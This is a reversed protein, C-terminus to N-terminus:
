ALKFQPNKLLRNLLVILKRMVATLALKKPKGAKLLHQYFAHLIPNFRSAVLAAMYLSRRVSDRGGHIMRRGRYTGSDHNIPAVGVLASIQKDEAHGLEPLEALLTSATVPGVGKVQQLRASQTRLTDDDDIQRTIMEELQAIQKRISAILQSTLKRLEKDTLAALRQEESSLLNVLQERRGVLEALRERQAVPAALAAPTFTEGYRRLINADLVDTKALLGCARAFARVRYANVLSLTIGARWLAALLEREYGGTPECIVHVPTPQARLLGILEAQGTPNNTFQSPAHDALSLDLANKSIDIGAYAQRLNSDTTNM